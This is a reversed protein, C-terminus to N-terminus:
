MDSKRLNLDIKGPVLYSRRFILQGRELSMFTVFGTGLGTSNEKLIYYLPRVLPYWVHSISEPSPKAYTGAECPKCELLAFKIKKSDAVQQPDDM